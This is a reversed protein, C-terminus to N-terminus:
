SCGWWPRARRVGSRPSRGPRPMRSRPSCTACPTSTASVGARTLDTEIDDEGEQRSLARAATTIALDALMEYVDANALLWEFASQEILDGLASAKERLQQRATHVARDSPTRERSGAGGVTVARQYAALVRVPRMGRRRGHLTGGCSCRCRRVDSVSEDCWATHAM